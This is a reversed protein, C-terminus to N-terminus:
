TPRRPRPPPRSRSRARPPRPSRAGCAASQARHERRDAVSRRRRCKRRLCPGARRSRGSRRSPAGAARPPRAAGARRAPGTAAASPSTSTRTARQRDRRSPGASTGRPRCRRRRARRTREHEAVLEGADIADPGRAPSRTASSGATGHPAHSARGPRAQRVEARAHAEGAVARGVARQAREDGPRLAESCGTGSADGVGLGRQELREADRQVREVEAVDPGPVGGADEAAPREAEQEHLREAGGAGRDITAVSGSAAGPRRAAGALAARRVRREVRRSSARRRDRRRRRRRPRRAVVRREVVRDGRAAGPRRTTSTPM